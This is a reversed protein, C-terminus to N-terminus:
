QVVFVCPLIKDDGGDTGMGGTTLFRRSVAGATQRTKILLTETAPFTRLGVLM